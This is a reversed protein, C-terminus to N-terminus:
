RIKLTQDQIRCLNQHQISKKHVVPLRYAKNVKQLSLTKNQAKLPKNQASKQSM